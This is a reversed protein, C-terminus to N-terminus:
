KQRKVRRTYQLWKPGVTISDEIEKKEKPTLTSHKTLEDLISIAREAFLVLDALVEDKETSKLKSVVSAMRKRDAATIKKPKM